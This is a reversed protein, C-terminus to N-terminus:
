YKSNTSKNNHYKKYPNLMKNSQKPSNIQNINQMNINNKYERKSNKDFEM